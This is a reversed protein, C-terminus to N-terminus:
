STSSGSSLRSSPIFISLLFDSALGQLDKPLANVYAEVEEDSGAMLLDVLDNKQQETLDRM